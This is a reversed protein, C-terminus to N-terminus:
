DPSVGIILLRNGQARHGLRQVASQLNEVGRDRRPQDTASKTDWIYANRNGAYYWDITHGDPNGLPTDNDTELTGWVCLLAFTSFGGYVGKLASIKNIDANFRHWADQEPYRAQANSCKIEIFTQDAVGIGEENNYQLLFDCRAANRGDAGKAATNNGRNYSLYTPPYGAGGDPYPFERECVRSPHGLFTRAIEVQMWGEWGGRFDPNGAVEIATSPDYSESLWQMFNQLRMVPM